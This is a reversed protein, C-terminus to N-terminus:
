RVCLRESEGKVSCELSRSLRKKKRLCSVSTCSRKTVISQGRTVLTQPTSPISQISPQPLNLWASTMSLSSNVGGQVEVMELMQGAIDERCCKTYM